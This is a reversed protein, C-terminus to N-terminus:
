RCATGTHDRQSHGLSISGTYSSGIDFLMSLAETLNTLVTCCNGRNLLSQLSLASIQLWPLGNLFCYFLM